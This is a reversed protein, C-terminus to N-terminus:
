NRLSRILDEYTGFLTSLKNSFSCTIKWGAPPLLLQMAPTETGTLLIEKNTSM